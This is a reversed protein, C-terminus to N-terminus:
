VVSINERYHLSFYKRRHVFQADVYAFYKNTAVTAAYGGDLKANNTMKSLSVYM